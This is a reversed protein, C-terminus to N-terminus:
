RAQGIARKGLLLLYADELRPQVVRAESVPPEAAVVRVMVRRGQHTTASVIYHNKIM